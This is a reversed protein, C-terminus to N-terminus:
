ATLDSSCHLTHIDQQKKNHLVPEAQSAVNHRSPRYAAAYMTHSRIKLCAAAQPFAPPKANAVQYPGIGTGPPVVTGAASLITLRLWVNSSESSQMTYQVSNFGGVSTQLQWGQSFLLCCRVIGHTSEAEGVNVPSAVAGRHQASLSMPMM